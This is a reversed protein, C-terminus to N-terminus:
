RIPINGGLLKIIALSSLINIQKHNLMPTLSLKGFPISIVKRRKSVLTSHGTVLKVGGYTEYDKSMRFKTTRQHMLNMNTAEWTHLGRSSALVDGINAFYDILWSWPLREWISSASRDIGYFERIGYQKWRNGKFKYDASFWAREEIQNVFNVYRYIPRWPCWVTGAPLTYKNTKLLGEVKRSKKLARQSAEWSAAFDILKALDSRLPDWGFSWGINLEPLVTGRDIAAQLTGLQRILSPLETLESIFLPLDVNPTYPNM